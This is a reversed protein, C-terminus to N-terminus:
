NNACTFLINVIEGVDYSALTPFWDNTNLFGARLENSKSIYSRYSKDLVLISDISNNDGKLSLREKIYAPNNRIQEISIM